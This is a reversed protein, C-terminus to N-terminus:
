NSTFVIHKVGSVDRIALELGHQIKNPGRFKLTVVGLDTVDVVEVIGGLAAIAPKLRDVEKQILSVSMGDGDAIESEVQVVEVGNFNENLVREIGMKMTVTSSPCSGCAGELQLFVKNPVGPEVKKVSVNGGDSILYPRIEDLVTDINEANFHLVKSKKPVKAVATKQVEKETNTSVTEESSFPSVVSAESNKPTQFTAATNAILDEEWEDDDDDYDDMDDEDFLYDKVDVKMGDVNPSGTPWIETSLVAGSEVAIKTWEEVKALMQAETSGSAFSYARIHTVVDDGFKNKQASLANYFDDTCGVYVVKGWQESVDSGRKFEKNHVAYVAKCPYADKLGNLIVKAPYILDSGFVPPPRKNSNSRTSSSNNSSIAFLKVQAQFANRILGISRQNNEITTFAQSKYAITSLVAHIVILNIMNKIMNRLYIDYGTTYINM